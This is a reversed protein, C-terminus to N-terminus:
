LVWGITGLGPGQNGIRVRAGCKHPCPFWCGLRYVMTQITCSKFKVHASGTDQPYNRNTNALLGEHFSFRNEKELSAIPPTMFEFIAFELEHNESATM